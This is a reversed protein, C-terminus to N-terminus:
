GAPGSLIEESEGLLFVRAPAGDAGALKLPLCSLLYDGPAVERLDLGEVIVVGAGLLTRHTLPDPASFAEVSLYDVGVLRAGREVLWRAAEPELYVFDERFESESWEDSNSTRFLVREIGDLGARELEEVGIARAHEIAVVRAPGVLAALPLSEVGAAGPIFHGPADVHTGTHVGLSLHSVDAAHGAAMEKIMTVEPGPEGPWTAMGPRLTRTVDYIRPPQNMPAATM